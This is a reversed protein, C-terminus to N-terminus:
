EEKLNISKLHKQFEIKYNENEEFFSELLEISNLFKKSNIHEIKCSVEDAEKESFNLFDLLFKNMIYKRKYLKSAKIIGKQTLNIHSHKIYEIYDYSELRKLASIVSSHKVEAENTIDRVQIIKNQLYLKYIAILYHELNETM